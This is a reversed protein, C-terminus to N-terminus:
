KNAAAEKKVDTVSPFRWKKRGFLTEYGCQAGELSGEGVKNKINKIVGRLGLIKGGQMMRGGSVRRVEARVSAYFKPPNGGPTDEPNGFMVGPKARVQNIFIALTNYSTVKGIWQRMLTSLFMPLSNRTRMNQKTLGGAAEDEVLMAAISDVVIIRKGNPNREHRRKMWLEAEQLLSEVTQLELEQGSRLLKPKFRYLADWNVGQNVAWAKDLSGELDVWGADAGDSQGLATLFLGLLSKGHSPPGFVEAILGYKLGREESGLVSNLRPSGTNMWLPEGPPVVKLGMEKQILALEEDPTLDKAM